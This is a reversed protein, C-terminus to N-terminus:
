ANRGAKWLAAADRGIEGGQDLLLEVCQGRLGKSPLALSPWPLIHVPLNIILSRAVSAVVVALLPAGAQFELEWAQAIDLRRQSQLGSAIDVDHQRSPVRIAFVAKTGCATLQLFLEFCGPESKYLQGDLM